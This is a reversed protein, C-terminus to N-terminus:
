EETSVIYQLSANIWIQNDNQYTFDIFSKKYM